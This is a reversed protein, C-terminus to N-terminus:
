QLNRVKARIKSFTKTKWRKMSDVTRLGHGNVANLNTVLSTWVKDKASVTQSYPDQGTIIKYNKKDNRTGLFYKQFYIEARCFVRPSFSPLRDPALVVSLALTFFLM